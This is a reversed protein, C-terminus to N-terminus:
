RVILVSCSVNRVIEETIDLNLLGGIMDEFFSKKHSGLILLDPKLERDAMRMCEVVEGRMIRIETEKDYSLNHIVSMIKNKIDKEDIEIEKPAIHIIHVDAGTLKAFQIAYSLTKKSNKGIPTRVSVMIKKHLNNDLNTNSKNKQRKKSNM